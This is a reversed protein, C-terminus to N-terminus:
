MFLLISNQSRLCTRGYVSLVSSLSICIKDLHLNMLKDYSSVLWKSCLSVEQVKYKASQQRRKCIKKSKRLNCKM